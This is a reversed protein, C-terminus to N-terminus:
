MNSFHSLAIMRFKGVQLMLLLIGNVNAGFSSHKNIGLIDMLMVIQSWGAPASPDGSWPGDFGETLLELSGVVQFWLVILVVIVM